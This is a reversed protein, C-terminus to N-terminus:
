YLSGFKSLPMVRLYAKGIIYRTDVCGIRADRSDSSQNRNDGMVFVCGEPVTIEGDFDLSRYTYDNIYDEELAQGDVYVIGQEFDIDVTQGELAIIRKVIPEQKFSDKRLIVIDGQKPTYFLKSIILTDGEWLTSQMSPGEVGVTRGVFVFLLICVVLATVICQVWDFADTKRSSKKDQEPEQANNDNIINEEAM